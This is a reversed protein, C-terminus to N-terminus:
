DLGFDYRDLIAALTGRFGFDLLSGVGTALANQELHDFVAACMKSPDHRARCFVGDPRTPHNRLQESWHQSVTYDGSTLRHDAGLRV